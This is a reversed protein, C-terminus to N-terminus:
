KKPASKPEAPAKATAPKAETKKAKEAAKAAAKEDKLKQAEAAATSLRADVAKRLGPTHKDFAARVKDARETNKGAFAGRILNGLFMRQQGVNRAGYKARLDEEKVETVTAVFDYSEDLTAGALALSVQDGCIKTSAGSASKVTQYGELNPRIQATTRAVPAAGEGGEGAQATMLVAHALMSVHLFRNMKFVETTATPIEIPPAVRGM